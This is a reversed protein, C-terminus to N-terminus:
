HSVSQEPFMIARYDEALTAYERNERLWQVGRQGMAHLEEPATKALRRMEAALAIADGAEVYVGSDAENIMSPFGSYSALVPKGSLMYDILKNLSQGYDWVRSRHAAFYLVDFEALVSQVAAKPVRGVFTVNPLQGYKQEYSARLGGDGVVVFHVDPEDVMAEVCEFFTDLANSIGISGAYGILFKGEPVGADRYEIPLDGAEELEAANYGMPVCEVRAPRGLVQEVHAGLNPMTGVIVDARAYGRREVAGLARVLPNRPSFGGEEVLTLPWIDRIEFVLTAGYRRRLRIGNLITLLSLSSVIIADPRPLEKWPVFLLRWEFHLWSLIRRISKAGSFKLTRVWHVQLGDVHQVQHATAMEPVVALHNSDSTILAVQDGRAVLARMLQYGRSGVTSPGPPAIYKAIYWITKSASAEAM